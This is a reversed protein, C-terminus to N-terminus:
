RQALFFVANRELLHWVMRHSERLWTGTGEGTMTTMHVSKHVYSVVEYM